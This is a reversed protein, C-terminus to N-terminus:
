ARFQPHVHEHQQLFHRLNNVVVYTDDGCLHFYDYDQAYREHVFRWISRVKQWMNGYSEPGPHSLAVIGLAPVNETSFALFGDCQWGWTLAATRALAHMPPHTYMLCLIRPSDRPVPALRVKETLLKFGGDEELGQGPRHECIDEPLITNNQDMPHYDRLLNGSSARLFAEVGRKLATPDVRSPWFSQEPLRTSRVTHQEYRIILDDHTAWWQLVALAVFMYVGAVM